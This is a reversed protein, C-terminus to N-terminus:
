VASGDEPFFHSNCYYKLHKSPELAEMKMTLILPAFYKKRLKSRNKPLKM